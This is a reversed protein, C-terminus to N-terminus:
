IQSLPLKCIDTHLQRYILLFILMACVEGITIHIVHPTFALGASKNMWEGLLLLLSNSFIVCPSERVCLLLMPHTFWLSYAYRQWQQWPLFTYFSFFHFSCLFLFTYFPFVSILVWKKKGIIKMGLQIKKHFKTSNIQEDRLYDWWIIDLFKIM